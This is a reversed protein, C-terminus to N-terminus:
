NPRLWKIQQTRENNFIVYFDVLHVLDFFIKKLIAIPNKKPNNPKPRKSRTDLKFFIGIVIYEFYIYFSFTYYIFIIYGWSTRPQLPLACLISNTSGIVERVPRVREIYWRQTKPHRRPPAAADCQFVCHLYVVCYIPSRGFTSPIPKPVAFGAMTIFRLSPRYGAISKRPSIILHFIFATFHLQSVQFQLGNFHFPIFLSSILHLTIDYFPPFKHFNLPSRFYGHFRM